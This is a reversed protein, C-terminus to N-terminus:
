SPPFDWRLLTLRCGSYLPGISTNKFLPGLQPPLLSLHAPPASTVSHPFSFASWLLCPQARVLRNLARETSNFKLSGPHRMDPTCLLNTITFNLTFPVLAPGVSAVPPLSLSSVWWLKLGSSYMLPFPSTGDRQGYHGTPSAQSIGDPISERRPCGLPSRWTLHTADAWFSVEIKEDWLTWLPQGTVFRKIPLPPVLVKQGWVTPWVYKLLWSIWVTTM